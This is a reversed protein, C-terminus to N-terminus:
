TKSESLYYDRVKGVAASNGTSDFIVKYGSTCVDKEAVSNSIDDPHIINFGFQM